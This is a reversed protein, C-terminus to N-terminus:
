QHSYENNVYSFGAFEMQNINAIFSKDCPTLRTTEDTFESDFNDFSRKSKKFLSQFCM